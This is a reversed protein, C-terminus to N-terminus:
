TFCFAVVNSLINIYEGMAHMTPLKVKHNTSNSMSQALKLQQEMEEITQDALMARVELKKVERDFFFIVYVKSWKKNLHAIFLKIVILNDFHFDM